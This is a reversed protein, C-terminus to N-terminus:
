EYNLVAVVERAGIEEAEKRLAEIEEPSATKIWNEVHDLYDQLPDKTKQDELDILLKNLYQRRLLDANAEMQKRIAEPAKHLPILLQNAEQAKWDLHKNELFVSKEEQYKSWFGFIVAQDVRNYIEGYEGKKAKKLCLMLDKPSDYPFSEIIEGATEILQIDHLCDKVMLSDCFYRLSITTLKVLSKEGMKKESKLQLFKPADIVKPLSLGSSIEMLLLYQNRLQDKPSICLDYATSGKLGNM